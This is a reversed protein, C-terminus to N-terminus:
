VPVGTVFLLGRALAEGSLVAGVAIYLLGTASMMARVASSQWAMYALVLPFILGVGIRLWFAPNDALSSSLAGTSEPTERAPLAVNLIVLAAQLLVAVLLFITMEELPRKPLRPTVLYWHGWVMAVTAGGLALSGALLSLLPGAVGWTPLSFVYATLVLAALGVGSAIVGTRLSRPRDGRFAFFSYPLTTALFAAFLARMPGMLDSDVRFGDIDSVSEVQLATLLTLGAGALAIGAGLKVFSPVVLGRLDVAVLVLLCGVSFEALLILVTYPLADVSM